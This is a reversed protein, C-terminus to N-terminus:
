SRTQDSLEKYGIPTPHIGDYSMKTIELIKDRFENAIEKIVARQVPKLTLSPMIWIVMDAKIKSRVDYLSESMHSRYDNSGLSIVVVKYPKNITPHQGYTELWKKSTIGVKAVVACEPRHQGVGVAISDGLILCEIM